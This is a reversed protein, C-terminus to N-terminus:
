LVQVNSGEELEDQTPAHYDWRDKVKRVLRDRKKIEKSEGPVEYSALCVVIHNSYPIIEWSGKQNEFGVGHVIIPERDDRTTFDQVCVSCMCHLCREEKLQLTLRHLTGKDDIWVTQDCM